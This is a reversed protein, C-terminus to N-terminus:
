AVAALVFSLVAGIGTMYFGDPDWGGIIPELWVVAFRSFTPVFFFTTSGLKGNFDALWRPYLEGDWFQRAFEKTEMAHHMGDNGWDPLGFVLTPWTCLLVLAVLLIMHRWANTNEGNSNM